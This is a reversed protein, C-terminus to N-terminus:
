HERYLIRYFRQGVNTAGPDALTPWANTALINGILIWSNTLLTTSCEIQYTAGEIARWRMRAGAMDWTLSTFRPPPTKTYGPSGIDGCQAAQFVGSDGPVSDCGFLCSDKDFLLSRGVVNTVFSISDIIEGPDEATANWLYLEDGDKGLSFGGYPYIKLGPLLQDRGWWDIFVDAVPNKVFVVSEGPQVVLSQKVKESGALTPEDSFRYGLLDVANTGFNTVEFWDHHENCGTVPAAQVETFRLDPTTTVYLRACHTNTGLANRARVCFETGSMQLTCNRIFLTRNTAGALAVGNSFWQYAALPFACVSIAFRATRNTVVTLDAPPTVVSPASLNTNITLVANSSFITTLGNNISVSYTGEAAATANTLTLSAKTAGPLATGNFLWQYRPRPMGVAEVRFTANLESCVVFNTPQQVIRLPIPGTTVGPSAIDAATEARCTGGQGLFSRVGFAGTNPDYVFSVGRTALGFDVTDVLKGAPDYVRIGDGYSSFGPNSFFGIPVNSGICSGWWARFQPEDRTVNNRVFIVSEGAAISRAPFAGPPHSKDSFKYNGLYVENTGFNTLEWFDSNNTSITTGNTKFAASLMETIALQARAPTAPLLALAVLGFAVGIPLARGSGGLKMSSGDVSKM